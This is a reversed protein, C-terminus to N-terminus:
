VSKEKIQFLQSIKVISWKCSIWFFEHTFFFACDYIKIKICLMSPHLLKRVVGTKARKEKKNEIRSEIIVLWYLKKIIKSLPSCFKECDRENM